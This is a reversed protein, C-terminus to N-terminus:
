TDDMTGSWSLVLYGLDPLATLDVIQNRKYPGLQVASLSGNSGAILTLDYEEPGTDLTIGSPKCAAMLLCCIAVLILVRMAM